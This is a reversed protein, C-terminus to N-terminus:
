APGEGSVLVGFADRVPREVAHGLDRELMQLSRQLRKLDESVADVEARADLIAVLGIQIIGAMIAFVAIAVLLELLTFGHQRRTATTPRPSM